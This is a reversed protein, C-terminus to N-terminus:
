EEFLSHLPQIAKPEASQQIRSLDSFLQEDSITPQVPPRSRELTLGLALALLAAASLAWRWAWHRRPESLRQYISRRQAELFERSVDPEVTAARRQEFLRELQGRCEACQEVHQDRDKLGYLAHEFDIETWHKM